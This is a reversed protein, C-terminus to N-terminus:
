PSSKPPPPELDVVLGHHDSVTTDPSDFARRCAAIRLTSGGHEGCRVLVYDIRRFPWDWDASYRNQPLFTGGDESTSASEWADRYCVSLGDVVHRGTWFRVSDSSPDADLDGAVVVHGPRSAVLAELAAAAARAQLVREHEHDLQWDPLHNALWVRGIPGPALVETVLTTSAFGATRPTVALDVERVEGVPWRSATTVGQGDPERDRQHVISWGDGLVDRAMDYADTRIVEQLTVVDPALEALGRALVPRRAAWDGRTGWTNLTVIRV